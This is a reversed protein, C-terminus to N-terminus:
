KTQKDEKDQWIRLNTLCTLGKEKRLKASGFM